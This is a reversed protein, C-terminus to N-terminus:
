VIPKKYNTAYKLNGKIQPIFDLSALTKLIRHCENKNLNPYELNNSALYTETNTKKIISHNELYSKDVTASNLLYILSTLQPYLNANKMVLESWKEYTICKLDYGIDNM